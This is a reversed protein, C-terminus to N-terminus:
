SWENCSQDFISTKPYGVWTQRLHWVILIQCLHTYFSWSICFSYQTQSEWMLCPTNFFRVTWCQFLYRFRDYNPISSCSKKKNQYCKISGFRVTAIVFKLEKYLEVSFNRENGIRLTYCKLYRENDCYLVKSEFIKSYIPFIFWLRISLLLLFLFCLQLGNPTCNVKSMCLLIM